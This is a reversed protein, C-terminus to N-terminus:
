TKDDAQNESEPAAVRESVARLVQIASLMHCCYTNSIQGRASTPCADKSQGAPRQRAPSDYAGDKIHNVMLSFINRPLTTAIHVEPEQADDDQVQM